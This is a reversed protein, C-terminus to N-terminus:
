SSPLYKKWEESEAVRKICDNRKQLLLRLHERLLIREILGGVFGCPAEFKMVDEMVTEGDTTTFYHDHCFSKFMGRVMSDQFHRPSSYATIRSTHTVMFGFHRGRWTVTEEPGIMGTTVRAVAQEGTQNTSAMHLDINRALNFCREIPAAIQTKLEIRIM